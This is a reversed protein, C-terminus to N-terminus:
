RRDVNVKALKRKLENQKKLRIKNGHSRVVRSNHWNRAYAPSVTYTAMYTLEGVRGQLHIRLSM